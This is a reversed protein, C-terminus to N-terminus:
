FQHVRHRIRNGFQCALCYGKFDVSFLRFVDNLDSDSLAPVPAHGDIAARMLTFIWTSGNLLLFRDMVVSGM